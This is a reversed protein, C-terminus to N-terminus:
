QNQSGQESRVGGLDACLEGSKGQLFSALVPTINSKAM